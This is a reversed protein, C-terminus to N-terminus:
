KKQLILTTIVITSIGNTDHFEELEKAASYFRPPAIIINQEVIGEDWIEGYIGTKRETLRIPYNANKGSISPVVAALLFLSVVFLTLCRMQHKEKNLL